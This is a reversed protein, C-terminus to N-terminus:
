SKHKTCGNKNGMMSKSLNIRHSETFIRKGNEDYQSEFGRKDVKRKYMHCATCLGHSAHSRDTRHCRICKDYKRSWINSPLIHEKRHNNKNCLKLNKILNDSVNGNIHHIMENKNLIRKLHREMIFRHELVRKNKEFDWIEVYGGKTYTKSNKWCANLPGKMKESANRIKLNYKKFWRGVTRGRVNFRQGIDNLTKGSNYINWLDFINIKRNKQKM